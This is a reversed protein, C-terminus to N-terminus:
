LSLKLDGYKILGIKRFIESIGLTLLAPLAFCFLAVWLLTLGANCGSNGIMEFIMDIPGVLGATGM